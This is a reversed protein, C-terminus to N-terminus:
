SARRRPPRAFRREVLSWEHAAATLVVCSPGGYTRSRGAAGPNVIWPRAERDVVLRHSHGCVVAAAEPFTGRLREHRRRAPFADGHIVVLTGGPLALEAREPLAELRETDAAPLKAPVDNNGRVALVRGTRPALADLVAAAGVDGAHVAIDCGAAVEGVRPDLHGHTDALLAVTVVDSPM